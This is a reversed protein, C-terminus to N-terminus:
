QTVEKVIRNVAKRMSNSNLRKPIQVEIGAVKGSFERFHELARAVREKTKKHDEAAEVIIFVVQKGEHIRYDVRAHIEEM